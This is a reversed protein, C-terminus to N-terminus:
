LSMRLVDTYENWTGIDNFGDRFKFLGLKLKRKIVSHVIKTTTYENKETLAIKKDELALNKSLIMIGSKALNGWTERDTPKEFIDIPKNEKNCKIIAFKSIDQVPSVGVTLVNKEKIHYEKMEKIIQQDEIFNDCDSVIVDSDLLHQARYFAGANGDLKSQVLYTLRVGMGADEKLYDMILDSKYNVIISIDIIGAEKIQSILKEIITIFRGESNLGIPMLPKPIIDTFPALRSGKGAALIVAKM